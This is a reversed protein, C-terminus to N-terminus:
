DMNMKDLIRLYNPKNKCLDMAQSKTIDFQEKRGLYKLIGLARDFYHTKMNWDVLFDWNLAQTIWIQGKSFLVEFQEKFDPIENLDYLSRRWIILKRFIDDIESWINLSAIVQNNKLEKIDIRKQYKSLKENSKIDEINVSNIIRSIEKQLIGLRISMYYYDGGIRKRLIFKYEAYLQRDPDIIKKYSYDDYIYGHETMLPDLKEKISRMINEM